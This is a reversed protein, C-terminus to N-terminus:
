YVLLEEMKLRIKEVSPVVAEMMGVNYPIPMDPTALRAIPADLDTFCESVVTAIIEGAFGGTITDEHVVLLKGCSKVAELVAAKDWPSITRLDLVRVRGAFAQAAEVCRHVAEGWSVVVLENGETLVAAQGFPQCYNDGPYPKRGAPTDLLARHEFFFTPDDGRLATRLL